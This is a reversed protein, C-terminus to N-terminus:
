SVKWKYHCNRCTITKPKSVAAVLMLLAGLAVFVLPFILWSFLGGFIFLGIGLTGLVARDSLTKYSDCKVCQIQM